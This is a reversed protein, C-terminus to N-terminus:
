IKQVGLPQYSCIFVLCANGPVEGWWRSQSEQLPTDCIRRLWSRPWWYNWRAPSFALHSCNWNVKPWESLQFLEPASDYTSWVDIGWPCLWCSSCAFAESIQASKWRSGSAWWLKQLWKEGAPMEEGRLMRNCCPVLGSKVDEYNKNSDMTHLGKLVTLEESCRGLFCCTIGIFVPCMTWDVFERKGLIFEAVYCLSMVPDGARSSFVCTNQFLFSCTSDQTWKSVQLGVSCVHTNHILQCTSGLSPPLIGPLVASASEWDRSHSCVVDM